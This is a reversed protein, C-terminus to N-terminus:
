ADGHRAVVVGAREARLALWEFQADSAPKDGREIRDYTSLSVGWATAVQRRTLELTARVVRVADHRALGDIRVHYTESATEVRRFPLAGLPAM